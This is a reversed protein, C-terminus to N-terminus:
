FEGLIIGAHRAADQLFQHEDEAENFLRVQEAADHHNQHQFTLIVQPTLQFDVDIVSASIRHLRATIKHM